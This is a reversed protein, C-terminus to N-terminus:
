FPKAAEAQKAVARLLDLDWLTLAAQCERQQAIDEPNSWYSSQRALLRHNSLWVGPTSNRYNMKNVLPNCRFLVSGDKADLLHIQGTELDAYAVVTGDPSLAFGCSPPCDVVPFAPAPHFREGQREYRTLRHRTHLLRDLAADPRIRGYHDLNPGRPDFLFFERDFINDFFYLGQEDAILLRNGCRSLYLEEPSNSYEVRQNVAATMRGSALEWKCLNLRHSGCGAAVLQTDDAVIAMEQWPVVQKADLRQVVTGDATNLVVVDDEAVVAMRTDDSSFTIPGDSGEFRRLTEEAPNWLYVHGENRFAVFKGGPSLEPKLVDYGGRDLIGSVGEVKGELAADAAFLAAGLTKLDLRALAGLPRDDRRDAVLIRLPVGIVEPCSPGIELFVRGAEEPIKTTEVHYRLLRTTQSEHATKAHEVAAALDCPRGECLVKGRLARGEVPRYPAIPRYDFHAEVKLDWRGQKNQITHVSADRVEASAAPWPPNQKEYCPPFAARLQRWKHSPISLGQLPDDSATSGNQRNADPSRGDRLRAAVLTQLDAFTREMHETPPNSPELRQTPHSLSVFRRIAGGSTTAADSTHTHSVMGERPAYGFWLTVADLSGYPEYDYYTEWDGDPHVVRYERWSVEQGAAEPPTRQGLKITEVAAPPEAQNCGSPLVAFLASLMLAGWLPLHHM